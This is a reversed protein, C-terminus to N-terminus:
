RQLGGVFGREALLVLHLLADLGQALFGEVQLLAADFVVAPLALDVAVPGEVVVQQLAGLLDVDGAPRAGVVDEDDVPGFHGPRWGRGLERAAEQEGQQETQACADGGGVQQLAQIVAYRRRRLDFADRPQRREADNGLDAALLGDLDLEDIRARVYRLGVPGQARRQLERGLAPQRAGQEDGATPRRLPLGERRQRDRPMECGHAQADQQDVGVQAIGRQVGLEAAAIGYPKAVVQGPAARRRLRKLA